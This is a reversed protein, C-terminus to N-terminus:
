SLGGSEITKKTLFVERQSNHAQFGINVANRDIRDGCSISEQSAVLSAASQVLNVKLNEEVAKKDKDEVLDFSGAQCSFKLFEM